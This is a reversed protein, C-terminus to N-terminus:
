DGTELVNDTEVIGFKLRHWVREHVYYLVMKVIAEAGGIALGFTLKGTLIWIMVFTTITGTIRWTFAKAIHRRKTVKHQM